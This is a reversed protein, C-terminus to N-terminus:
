SFIVFYAAIFAGALVFWRFLAVFMDLGWTDLDVTHAGFGSVSITAQRSYPTGGSPSLVLKNLLGLIPANQSAASVASWVDSFTKKRVCDGCQASTLPPVEAPPPEYPETTEGPGQGEPLPDHAGPAVDIYDQGQVVATQKLADIAEQLKNIITQYQASPFTAGAEVAATAASTAAATKDASIQDRAQIMISEAVQTNSEEAATVPTGVPQEQYSAAPSTVSTYFVSEQVTILQKWNPRSSCGQYLQYSILSLGGVVVSGSPITGPTIPSGGSMSCSCPNDPACSWTYNTGSVVVSTGTTRGWYWKDTSLTHEDVGAGWYYTTTAGIQAKARDMYRNQSDWLIIALGIAATLGNMGLAARSLVIGTGVKGAATAVKTAGTSTMQMFQNYTLAYSHVPLFLLYFVVIFLAIVRKMM